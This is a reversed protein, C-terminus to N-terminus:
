SEQGAHEQLHAALKTRQDPTLAPALAEYFRAMRRIGHSPLGFNLGEGGNLTKADFSDATFAAAFAKIRGDVDAPEPRKASEPAAAHLSAKVKDVQDPTLSLERTVTAFRDGHKKDAGSEEGESNAKQWVHWHAELKQVLAQREPASLVGHLQNLADATAAHVSPLTADFQAIAADVKAKDVNGAAVGDAIIGLVTHQAAHSPELKTWLDGQIKVVNAKEADSLGLSDVGGHHHRHHEILQAGPEDEGAEAGAPTATAVEASSATAAPASSSGGCAISTGSAALAIVIAATKQTWVM